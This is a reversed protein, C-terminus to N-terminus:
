AKVLANMRSLIRVFEFDKHVESEIRTTTKLSVATHRSAIRNRRVVTATRRSRPANQAISLAFAISPLGLQRKQKSVGTVGTGLLLVGHRVSTDVQGNMITSKDDDYLEIAVHAKRTVQIFQFCM